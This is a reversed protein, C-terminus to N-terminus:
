PSNWRFVEPLESLPPFERDRENRILEDAPFPLDLRLSADDVNIGMECDPAYYAGGVKYLVTTDDELTCYGHACGIPVFLQRCETTDLRVSISRGFSPSGHRIDVVFDVIAGHLVQVLKAQGAPPRQFHLGRLTGRYRSTALNDQVMEDAIGAAEARQRNWIETFSGRADGHVTPVLIKAGEIETTEIRM